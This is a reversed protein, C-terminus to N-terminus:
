PKVPWTIETLSDVAVKWSKDAKKHTETVDRLAQRYAKLATIDEDADFAINIAIDAEKLLAERDKLLSDMKKQRILQDAGTKKKLKFTAKKAEVADSAPSYIFSSDLTAEGDVMITPIDNPDSVTDTGNSWSEVTAEAAEIAPIEVSELHEKSVEENGDFDLGETIDEFGEPVSSIINASFVNGDKDKLIRKM